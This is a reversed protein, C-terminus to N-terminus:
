EPSFQVSFARYFIGKEFGRKDCRNVAEIILWFRLHNLEAPNCSKPLNEFLFFGLKPLNQLAKSHFLNTYEQFPFPQYIRPISFTPINKPWRSDMKAVKYMKNGNPINM